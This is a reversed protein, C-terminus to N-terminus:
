LGGARVEDLLVVPASLCLVAWWEAGNLPAVGFLAAAPPCYLIAFHLAMSTTIAGLLWRNDWPPITLLSRAGLLM